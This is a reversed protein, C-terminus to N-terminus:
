DSERCCRPPEMTRSSFKRVTPKTKANRAAMTMPTKQPFFLVLLFFAPLSAEPRKMQAQGSEARGADEAGV